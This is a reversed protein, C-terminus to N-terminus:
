IISINLAEFEVDLNAISQDADPNRGEIRAKMIRIFRIGLYCIAASTDIVFFQDGNYRSGSIRRVSDTLETVHDDYHAASKNAMDRILQNRSLYENSQDNHYAPVLLWDRLKYRQYNSRPLVSWTKYGLISAM